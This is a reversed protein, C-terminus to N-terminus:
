SRVRITIRNSKGAEPTFEVEGVPPAAARKTADTLGITNSRARLVCEILPLFLEVATQGPALRLGEGTDLNQQGLLANLRPDMNSPHKVDIQLRAVVASEGDAVALEVSVLALRLAVDATVKAGSAIDYVEDSQYLLAGTALDVALLRYKGPPLQLAFKRDHGVLCKAGRLRTGVGFQVTMGNM